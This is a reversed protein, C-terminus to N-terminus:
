QPLQRLRKRCLWQCRPRSRRLPRGQVPLAAQSAHIRKGGCLWLWLGNLQLNPREIGAPAMSPAAAPSASRSRQARHERRKRKPLAKTSDSAEEHAGRRTANGPAGAAEAEVLVSRSPELQGHAMHEGHSGM